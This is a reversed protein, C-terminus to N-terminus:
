GVCKNGYHTLRKESILHPFFSFAWIINRLRLSIVYSHWADGIGIPNKIIWDDFINEILILKSTEKKDFFLNLWDVIWSFYLLNWKWLRPEYTDWSFPSKM